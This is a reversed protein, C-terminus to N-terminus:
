EALYELGLSELKEKEPIGEQSWGREKYYDNLIRGLHPLNGGSRGTERDHSLLRPPLKDDKRSIGQKVNYMRKMNHLREGTEFIDDVDFDWGTVLNVWDTFDETTVEGQILFKCLGLANFLNMFNQIVAALEGKNEHHHPDLEKEFGFNEPPYTGSETFYSLAELHCAGRNATAYNGAMSTFARPDHFAYSLGKTHVAFEEALGGLEEAAKKVGKALVDGIDERAAIKEILELVAEGDGWDLTLGGTDEETILGKQFSEIAMAVANGTSITDLGYRNCLDNAACLYDPDDNLVMSGFAAATEYEPGHGEEGEYPGVRVEVDKGCRIPCAYCSYHGTVVTEDLTQGSIKEAGEEWSGLTWNKIPLDGNAEVGMVGGATGFKTLGEAKDQLEPIFQKLHDNLGDKDYLTPKQDGTVAVAKVNKSGMLAGMGCRGAARTERGGIMIGAILAQKEGAPGLSAVEFEKGHEEKIKKETAYVDEGWLDEANKIEVEDEDILLSVPNSAKGTLILGDYGTKKLQSGFFGGVTSEAWIGTLPSKGVVSVKCATPIRTGTLMGAMFMLPAEESLPSLDSDFESNLLWGALGSGAFYKKYNEEAIEIEEQTEESLDIKLVKGHYGNGM